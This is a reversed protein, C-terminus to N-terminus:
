EGEVKLGMAKCYIPCIRVDCKILNQFGYYRYIDCNRCLENWLAQKQEHKEDCCKDLYDAQRELREIERKLQRRTKM